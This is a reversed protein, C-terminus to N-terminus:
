SACSPAEELWQSIPTLFAPRALGPIAEAAPEPISESWAPESRPSAIVTCLYGGHVRLESQPIVLACPLRTLGGQQEALDAPCYPDRQDLKKWLTPDIGPNDAPVPTAEPAGSLVARAACGGRCSSAFGCDRTQCASPMRERRTQLARFAPRDVLESLDETLADGFRLEHLFVCPSVPVRGDPTISNIRMSQTGCPCGEGPIGWMAALTPEGVVTPTSWRLVEEFFAQYRQPTLVLDDHEAETAKMTNIRVDAGVENALTFLAAVHAPSSNWGMACTILTLPAGAERVRQMAKKALAFFPGGRNRDHEHPLASDISVHWEGVRSFAEPDLRSLILATTGNTTVGVVMGRDTAERIIWPLMSDEPRPGHTYIPENGGLNVTKVELTELQDLVRLADERTLTRTGERVTWSYCHGCRANCHNGLSWGVQQIRSM